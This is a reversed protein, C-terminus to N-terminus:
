EQFQNDVIETSLETELTYEINYTPAKEGAISRFLSGGAANRGHPVVGVVRKLMLYQRMDASIM